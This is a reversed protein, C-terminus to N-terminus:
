SILQGLHYHEKSRNPIYVTQNKVPVDARRLDEHIKETEGLSHRPIEKLFLVSM